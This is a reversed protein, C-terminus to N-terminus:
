SRRLIGQQKFLSYPVVLAIIAKRENHTPQSQLKKVAPVELDQVLFQLIHIVVTPATQSLLRNTTSPSLLPLRQNPKPLRPQSQFITTRDCLDILMLLLVVARSAPMLEPIVPHQLRDRDVM